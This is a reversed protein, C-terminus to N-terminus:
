KLRVQMGVRLLRAPEQAIQFQRGVAPDTASITSSCRCGSSMAV